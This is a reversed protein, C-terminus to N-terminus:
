TLKHILVLNTSLKPVYLVIKLVLFHHIKIEGQGAVTNLSGDVTAIKKNNLCPNYTSFKLSSNKMYDKAGSDIVWSNPFNIDSASLAHSILSKGM